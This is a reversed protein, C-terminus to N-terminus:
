IVNARDASFVILELTPHVAVILVKVAGQVGSIGLLFTLTTKVVRNVELAMVVAVKSDVEVEMTTKILLMLLGELVLGDELM